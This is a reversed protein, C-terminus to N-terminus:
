SIEWQMPLSFFNQFYTQHHYNYIVYLVQNKTQRGSLQCIYPSLYQVDTDMLNEYICSWPSFKFWSSNWSLLNNKMQLFLFSIYVKDFVIIENLVRLLAQIM